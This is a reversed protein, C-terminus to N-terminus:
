YCIEFVGNPTEVFSGGFVIDQGYQRYDFYARAPSNEPVGAFVDGLDAFYEGMAQYDDLSDVDVKSVDEYHELAADLGAGFEVLADVRELDDEDLDALVEAAENLREMSDYEDIKLSPLAPCESDFIAWEETGPDIERLKAALNECPLSVWGGVLATAYKTVSGAWVRLPAAPTATSATPANTETLRSNLTVIKRTSFKSRVVGASVPM